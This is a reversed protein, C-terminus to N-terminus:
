LGGPVARDAPAAGEEAVQSRIRPEALNTWSAIEERTSMDPYRNRQFTAELEQLQQSTFHTRQRRLKKKGLNMEEEGSSGSSKDRLNCSARCHSGLLWAGPTSACVGPGQPHGLPPCTICGQTGNACVASSHGERGSGS